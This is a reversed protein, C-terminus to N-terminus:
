FYKTLTQSHPVTQPRKPPENDTTKSVWKVKGGMEQQSFVVAEM